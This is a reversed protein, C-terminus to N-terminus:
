SERRIKKKERDYKGSRKGRDGEGWIKKPSGEQNGREREDRERIERKKRDVEGEGGREWIEVRMRVREKERSRERKIRKKNTRM